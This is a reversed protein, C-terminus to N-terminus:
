GGHERCHGNLGPRVNDLESELNGIAELGEGWGVPFGGRPTRPPPNTVNETVQDPQSLRGAPRNKPVQSEIDQTGVSCNIAHGSLQAILWHQLERVPESRRDAAPKICRAHRRRDREALDEDV